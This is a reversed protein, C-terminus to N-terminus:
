VNAVDEEKMLKADEIMHNVETSIGEVAEVCGDIKKGIYEETADGIMYALAATGMGMVVKKLLKENPAIAAKGYRTIVYGAGISALGGILIKSAEIAVKKADIKFKKM